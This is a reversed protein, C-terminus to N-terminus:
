IKGQLLEVAKDLQPDRGKNIDEETVEVEVAPTLGGESISVGNPTLWKAITIKLSTEPTLKVLEQVSGKGFTKTGILTGVGHESLAGALIESASASGGNVLIAMTYSADFANYGKSRYVKEESDDGFKERVIPKGLPLFWSAMDVSAELYGGPNGRLDLVLKKSGSVYFKRLADRFLNPSQASFNYLKIIFIGDDRLETDITPIEIRARTVAVEIPKNAGNRLLIFKVQTGEKGRILQVAQEVAMNGTPTGDIELIKDGTRIGAKEAPTNKLPAIVTLIDNRIGIEMGVGSFQGSIDEEFIRAEEPPFFVTYPDGMSAALGAIAGWVKEEDTIEEATVYKENLVNWAKWFPAFDITGPQAEEKNIVGIVKAAEPRNEYGIFIGAFFAAPIALIIFIQFTLKILLNREM